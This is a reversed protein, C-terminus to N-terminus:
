RNHLDMKLLQVHRWPFTRMLETPYKGGFFGGDGSYPDAGYQSPDEGFFALGKGTQDRVIMGYRQAAVAMM